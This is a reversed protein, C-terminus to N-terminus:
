NVSNGGPELERTLPPCSYLSMGKPLNINIKLGGHFSFENEIKGAKFFSNRVSINQPYRFEMNHQRM